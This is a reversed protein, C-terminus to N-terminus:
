ILNHKTGDKRIRQQVYSVGSAFPTEQNAGEQKKASRARIIKEHRRIEDATEFFNATMLEAPFRPRVDRMDVGEHWKRRYSAERVIEEKTNPCAGCKIGRGMFFKVLQQIHVAVGSLQLWDLSTKMKCGRDCAFDRKSEKLAEEVCKKCVYHGCVLSFPIFINQCKTPAFFGEPNAEKKTCRVCRWEEIVAALLSPSVSHVAALQDQDLPSDEM